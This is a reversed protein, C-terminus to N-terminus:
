MVGDFERATERIPRRNIHHTVQLVRDIARRYAPDRHGFNHQVVSIRHRNRVEGIDPYREPHEEFERHFRTGTRIHFRNLMVREISEVHDELFEVTRLVDNAEEGPYGVIMTVRVSIGAAAGDRIAQSSTALDTGKRMLDLVRQSGSELGTTFRVMGAQRAAFLEKKTLGNRKRTSGIHVAGIWRADPVRLHMKELLSDWVDLNSNLKPDTFVFLKTDFREAQYRLEQLVNKPSRSRFTRGASGTIDSCFTCASWQCGRGTAIPIIRNPYNEWPFDSFDPYPIADLDELPPANPASLDTTWVGPFGQLSKKSILTRVIEGLYPEVEGGVL